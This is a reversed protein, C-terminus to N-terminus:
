RRNVIWRQDVVIPLTVLVTKKAVYSFILLDRYFLAIEECRCYVISFCMYRYCMYINNCKCQTKIAASKGRQDTLAKFCSFTRYVENLVIYIHSWFHRILAFWFLDIRMVKMIQFSVQEINFSMIGWFFLTFWRSFRQIM